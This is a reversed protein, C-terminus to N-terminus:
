HFWHLEVGTVHDDEAADNRDKATVLLSFEERLIVQTRERLEGRIAIEHAYSEDNRQVHIWGEVQRTGFLPCRQVFGMNARNSDGDSGYPLELSNARQSAQEVSRFPAVGDNVCDKRNRRHDEGDDAGYRSVWTEISVVGALVDVPVLSPTPKVRPTPRARGAPVVVVRSGIGM